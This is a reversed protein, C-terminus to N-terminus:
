RDILCDTVWLKAQNTKNLVIDFNLLLRTGYETISLDSALGKGKEDEKIRFIITSPKRTEPDVVDAELKYCGDYKIPRGEATPIEGSEMHSIARFYVSCNEVKFM